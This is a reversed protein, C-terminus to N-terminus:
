SSLRARVEVAAREPDGGFAPCWQQFACGACLRGPRPRFQGSRCASEVARWVATTRTSIFKVSQESPRTEIVESDRLYMLRIRAPRRGFVQECLFSYFHVGGLRQQEYARAPSRGTKYDTVVLEGDDDLDLRDIVGRLSLEGVKAELRLELGIENVQAPDEMALYREVLARADAEFAQADDDDLSLDTFDPHARYEEIAADLAAIAAARDRQGAPRTFLLELARHVLSGKTMHISPPEPLREISAFRFALPCSTFADVRSPSLSTPVQFPTAPATSVATDSMPNM